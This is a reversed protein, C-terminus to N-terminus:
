SSPQPMSVIDYGRYSGRVPTRIVPQYSKLDDLTIIGGAKSIAKVLMEAVAGEYFGRAGRAAIASLTEALDTQVLIDGERLPSGDARSFIRASSPWRASRRHWDPLTDASDDTVRVGSHALDIAPQLLEALSFRGSGYKQLALTLSAPTGPVG